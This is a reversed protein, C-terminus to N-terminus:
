ELASTRIPDVFRLGCRAWPSYRPSKKNPRISVSYFLNKGSNILSRNRKSGFSDIMGVHFGTTPNQNFTPPNFFSSSIDSLNYTRPLRAIPIKGSNNVGCGWLCWLRGSPQVSVIDPNEAYDVMCEAWLGNHREIREPPNIMVSLCCRSATWISILARLSAIRSSFFSWRARKWSCFRLYPGVM